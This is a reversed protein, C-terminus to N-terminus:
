IFSYLLVINVSKVHFTNIKQWEKKKEENWETSKMQQQSKNQKTKNWKLEMTKIKRSNSVYTQTYVYVSKKIEWKPKQNEPQFFFQIANMQDRAKYSNNCYSKTPPVKKEWRKRESDRYTRNMRRGRGHSLFQLISFYFFCFICMMKANM